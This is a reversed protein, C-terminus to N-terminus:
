KKKKGSKICVTDTGSIEVEDKTKGTLKAETSNEDLGQLEQTKFHFLLDDDGDDDVDCLRWRVPSAGAFEVTTPDVDGADFDETTLVAVPVVGKSKLNINNPNGGPKIDITIENSAHPPELYIPISSIFWLGSTYFGPPIPENNGYTGTLVGGSIVDVTFQKSSGLPVGDLSFNTGYVTVIPDQEGTTLVVFLGVSGSYINLIGGPYVYVSQADTDLNVTAGAGIELVDLGEGPVVKEERVTDILQPTINYEHDENYYEECYLENCYVGEGTFRMNLFDGYCTAAYLLIALCCLLLTSFRMRIHNKKNKKKM